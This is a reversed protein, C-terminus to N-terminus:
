RIVGGEVMGVHLGDPLDRVLQPEGDDVVAVVAPRRPKRAIEVEPVTREESPGGGVRPARHAGDAREKARPDHVAVPRQPERDQLTPAAPEWEPHTAQAVLGRVHAADCRELVVYLVVEG